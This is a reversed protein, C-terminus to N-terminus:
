PCLLQDYAVAFSQFDLDDVLGDRNLDSPCAPPMAPDACELIDYAVVFIQFDTDDVFGDSNLDCVCAASKIVSM